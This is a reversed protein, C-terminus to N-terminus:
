DEKRNIFILSINLFIIIIFLIVGISFLAERALDAAYSMEMGIGTTLTKVPSLLSTPMNPNNGAVLIVATTEGVARGIGLIYASNIGSRAAPVVVNFVAETKNCGLALAGEYYSKPVAKIATESLNIITPLIMVSLIIIVALLSKGPGGFNERIFLTVIVLGFFGYIISPVGSLLEVITKIIKYSKRPCFFSLYIACWKGIRSGIFFAVITSIITTVIFPLIGFEMIDPEWVTGFLFKFVGIKFIAPVGNSFIYLIILFLSFVSTLACAFFLSKALFEFKKGM